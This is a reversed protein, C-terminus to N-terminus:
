IGPPGGGGDPPPPPMEDEEQRASVKERKEKWATFKIKQDDSLIAAVRAYADERISNAAARTKAMAEWNAQQDDGTTADTSTKGHQAAERSQKFLAEIQQHQDTLIAKVQTQQKTTLTLLQALQKLERYVSPGRNQQQQMEGPPPGDPPPGGLGDPQAWLACCSGALVGAILLARKIPLNGHTIENM